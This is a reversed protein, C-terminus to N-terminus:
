QIVIKQTGILQSDSDLVQLYYLGSTLSERQVNLQVGEFSWQKMEKGTADLLKVLSHDQADKLLITWQTSAPNPYIRFLDAKSQEAVSLGMWPADMCSAAASQSIQALFFSHDASGGPNISGFVPAIYQTRGGTWVRTPTVMEIQHETANVEATNVWEVTGASDLYSVFLNMIGIDGNNQWPYSGTGMDFAYKYSGVVVVNGCLDVSLDTAYSINNQAQKYWLIAGSTSLKAVLMNSNITMNNFPTISVNGFQVNNMFDGVVYVSNDIGIEVGQFHSSMMIQGSACPGTSQMLKTWVFTPANGSQNDLKAIYGAVGCTAGTQITDFATNGNVEGVLIIDDNYDTQLEWIGAFSISKVWVDNLNTDLKVLGYTSVFPNAVLIQSQFFATDRYSFSIIPNDQSDLTVKGIPFNYNSSSGALFRTGFNRKKLIEGNEDMVLVINEGLDYNIAVTDLVVDERVAALLILENNANVEIDMLDIYNVNFTKAWIYNGLTDLRAIYGVSSGAQPTVTITGFTTPQNMRGCTFVDNHNGKVIEKVSYQATSGINQAWNWTQANGKTIALLFILPLLLRNKLNNTMMHKFPNFILESITIKM